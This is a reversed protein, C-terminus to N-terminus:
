EFEDLDELLAFDHGDGKACLPSMVWLGCVGLVIGTIWIVPTAYFGHPTIKMAGIAKEDDQSKKEYVVKWKSKSSKRNTERSEGKSFSSKKKKKSVNKPKSTKAKLAKKIKSAMSEGEKELILPTDESRLVGYSTIDLFDPDDEIPPPADPIKRNLDLMISDDASLKGLSKLDGMLEEVDDQYTHEPASNEQTHNSTWTKSPHM